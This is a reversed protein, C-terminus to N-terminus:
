ISGDSFGGALREDSPRFAPRALTAQIVITDALHLPRSPRGWCAASESGILNNYCVQHHFNSTRQASDSAGGPSVFKSRRVGFRVVDAFHVIKAIEGFVRKGPM